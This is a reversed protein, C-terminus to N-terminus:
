DSSTVRKVRTIVYNCHSIGGISYAVYYSYLDSATDNTTYAM